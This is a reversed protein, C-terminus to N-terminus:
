IQTATICPNNIIAACHHEILYSVFHAKKNKYHVTPRCSYGELITVTPGTKKINTVLIRFKCKNDKCVIIYRKQDSKTTKFSEGNDLVHRQVADCADKMLSFTDGKQVM